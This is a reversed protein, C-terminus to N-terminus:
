ADATGGNGSEKDGREHAANAVPRIRISRDFNFRMRAKSARKTEGHISLCEVFGVLRDGDYFEMRDGHALTRLVGGKSPNTM